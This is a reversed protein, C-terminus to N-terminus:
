AENGVRAVRPALTTPVLVVWANWVGGDGLHTGLPWTAGRGEGLGLARAHKLRAKDVWVQTIHWKALKSELLTVRALPTVSTSSEYVRLGFGLANFVDGVGEFGRWFAAVFFHLTSSPTNHSQTHSSTPSVCSISYTSEGDGYACSSSLGSEAVINM